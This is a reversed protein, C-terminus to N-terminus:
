IRPKVNEMLYKDFAAYDNIGKLQAIRRLGGAIAASREPGDPYLRRIERSWCETDEQRCIPAAGDTCERLGPTDGVIVPIGAAMAELAVRGWSESRSPM